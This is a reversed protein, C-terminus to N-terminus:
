DIADQLVVAAEDLRAAPRPPVVKVKVSGRPARAASRLAEKVWSSAGILPARTSTTSSSFLM